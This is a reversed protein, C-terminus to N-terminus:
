YKVNFLKRWWPQLANIVLDIKTLLITYERHEELLKETKEDFEILEDCIQSLNYEIMAKYKRQKDIEAKYNM